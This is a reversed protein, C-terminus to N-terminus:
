FGGRGRMLIAKAVRGAKDLHFDVREMNRVWLHPFRGRPMQPGAYLVAAPSIALLMASTALKNSIMASM